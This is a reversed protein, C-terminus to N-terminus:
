TGGGASRPAGCSTSTSPGRRWWSPPTRCSRTPRVALRPRRRSRRTRRGPVGGHVPGRDGGGARHPVAPHRARAHPRGGRRRGHPPPRTGEAEAALAPDLALAARLGDVIRGRGPDDGEVVVSIQRPADPRGPFVTRAVTRGAAWGEAYPDGSLRFVREGNVPPALADAVVVPMHRHLVGATVAATPGCPVALEADRHPSPWNGPGPRTVATTARGSWSRGAASAARPTSSASPWSSASSSPAAGAPPPARCTASRASRTPGPAPRTGPRWGCRWRRWRRAEVSRSRPGGCVPRPCSSM